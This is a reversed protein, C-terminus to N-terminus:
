KSRRERKKPISYVNGSSGRKLTGSQDMEHDKNEMGNPVGTGVPSMHSDGICHQELILEEKLYEDSM